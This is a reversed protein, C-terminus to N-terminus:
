KGSKEKILRIDLFSVLTSNCGFTFSVVRSIDQFNFLGTHYVLSWVLNVINTVTWTKSNHCAIQWFDGIKVVRGANAVEMTPSETQTKGFSQYWFVLMGPSNHPMTQTIRHKAMEASCRSTVSLCVYLCVVVDHAMSAHRGATMCHPM